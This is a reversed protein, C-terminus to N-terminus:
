DDFHCRIDWFASLLIQLLGRIVFMHTSYLISVGDDVMKCELMGGACKSYLNILGSGVHSNRYFGSKIMKTHLQMGGALDKLSTFATLVSAMTFMDVELEMRVMECFLTLAESGEHHQGCVVIM